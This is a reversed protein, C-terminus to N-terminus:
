FGIKRRLAPTQILDVGCGTGVIRRLWDPAQPEGAVDLVFEQGKAVTQLLVSGQDEQPTWREPTAHYSLGRGPRPSM